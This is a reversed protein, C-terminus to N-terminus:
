DRKLALVLLSPTAGIKGFEWLDLAEVAIKAKRL